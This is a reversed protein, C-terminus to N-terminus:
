VYNLKNRPLFHVAGFVFAGFVIWNIGIKLIDSPIGINELGKSIADALDNTANVLVDTNIKPLKKIVELINIM